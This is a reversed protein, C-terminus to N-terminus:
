IIRCSQRQGDGIWEEYNKFCSPLSPGSAISLMHVPSWETADPVSVLFIRKIAARGEKRKRIGQPKKGHRFTTVREGKEEGKRM